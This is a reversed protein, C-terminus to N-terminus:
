SFPLILLHIIVLAFELQLMLQSKPLSIGDNAINYPLRVSLSPHLCSSLFFSPFCLFLSLLFSFFSPLALLFPDIFYLYICMGYMCERSRYGIAKDLVFNM